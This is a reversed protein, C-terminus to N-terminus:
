VHVAETIKFQTHVKVYNAISVQRCVVRDVFAWAIDRLTGMTVDRGEVTVNERVLGLQMAFTMVVSASVVESCGSVAM